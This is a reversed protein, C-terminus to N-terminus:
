LLAAVIATPVYPGPACVRGLEEVVVAQEVFGAGHAHMDVWGPEALAHWFGPRTETPADLAARLVSAPIRAEAFRRVAQRLHEHEETIGIPMRADSSRRATACCRSPRPRAGRHRWCSRTRPRHRRTSSSPLATTASISSQPP